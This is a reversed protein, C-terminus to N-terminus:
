SNRQKYKPKTVVELIKVFNSFIGIDMSLLFFIQISIYKFLIRTISWLHFLNEQWSVSYDEEKDM